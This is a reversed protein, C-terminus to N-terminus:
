RSKEFYKALEEYNGTAHLERGNNLKVTAKTPLATIKEIDEGRVDESAGNSLEFTLYEPMQFDHIFEGSAVSVTDIDVNDFGIDGAGVLSCGIYIDIADPAVYGIIKYLEWETSKIPRDTKASFFSRRKENRDVRMWLREEGHVSGIHRAAARYKIFKGRFPTADFSQMFNAFEKEAPSHKSHIRVWYNGHYAGSSDLAVEYDPQNQGTFWPPAIHSSNPGPTEFDLNTPAGQAFSTSKNMVHFLCIFIVGYGISVFRSRSRRM